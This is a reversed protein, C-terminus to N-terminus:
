GELTHPITASMLAGCLTTVFTQLIDAGGETSIESIGLFVPSDHFFRVQVGFSESSALMMAEETSIKAVIHVDMDHVFRLCRESINIRIEERDMTIEVLGLQMLEDERNMAEVIAHFTFGGTNTYTLLVKHRGYLSDREGRVYMVGSTAHISWRAETEGGTVVGLQRLMQEDIEHLEDHPVTSSRGLFAPSIGMESIYEAIKASMVQAQGINESSQNQIWFQHVGFRSAPGFHRLKGGIYILTAASMCIGPYRKRSATTIDTPPGELVYRGIHTSLRYERIARGIGLAADVDGGPSDIYVDARSPVKNSVLFRHFKEDDGPRIKGILHIDQGIGILREIGTQPETYHFEM